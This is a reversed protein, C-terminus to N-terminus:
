KSKSAAAENFAANYEADDNGSLHDKVIRLVDAATKAVIHENARPAPMAGGKSPKSPPAMCEVVYGNKAAYVTCLQKEYMSM